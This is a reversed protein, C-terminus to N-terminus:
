KGVERKSKLKSLQEILWDCTRTDGFCIPKEDHGVTIFGITEGSENKITAEATM